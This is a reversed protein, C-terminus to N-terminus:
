SITESLSLLYSPLIEQQSSAKIQPDIVELMSRFLFPTFRACFGTNTMLTNDGLLAKTVEERWSHFSQM